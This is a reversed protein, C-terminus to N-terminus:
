VIKNLRDIELAHREIIQEKEQIIARSEKNVECEEALKEEAYNRARNTRKLKEVAEDHEKVLIDHTEVLKDYEHTKFSLKRDLLEAEEKAAKLQMKLAKLDVEHQSKVEELAIVENKTTQIKTM